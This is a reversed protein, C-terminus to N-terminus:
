RGDRRACRARALCAALPATANMQEGALLDPHEALLRQLLDESEYAQQDLSQLAGNDQLLYIRGTM